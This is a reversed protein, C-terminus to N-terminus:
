QKMHCIQSSDVAFIWQAGLHQLCGLFGLLRELARLSCPLAAWTGDSPPGLMDGDVMKIEPELGDMGKFIKM